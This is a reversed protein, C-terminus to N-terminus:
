LMYDYKGDHYREALTSGNLTHTIEGADCLKEAYNQAITNLKSSLTLKSLNREVRRRSHESALLSRIEDITLNDKSRTLISERRYDDICFEQAFLSRTHCFLHSLYGVQDKLKASITPRDAYQDLLTQTQDLKTIKQENTPLPELYRTRYTDYLSEVGVEEIGSLAFLSIPLLISILLLLKKM